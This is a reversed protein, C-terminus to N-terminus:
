ARNLINNVLNSVIPECSLSHSMFIATISQKPLIGSADIVTIKIPWAALPKVHIM